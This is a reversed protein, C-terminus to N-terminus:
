RSRTAMMHQRQEPTLIDRTKAAMVLRDGMMTAHRSMMAAVAAQIATPNAPTMDFASHLQKQSAQMEDTMPMSKEPMTKTGMGAMGHSEMAAGGLAEIQSVQNASLKLMEKHHLVHEPLFTMADMMEMGGGSMMEGMMKKMDGTMNMMNGKMRNTAPAGMKMKGRATMSTDAHRHSQAELRGSALTLMLLTLGLGKTM